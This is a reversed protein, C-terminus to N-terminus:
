LWRCVGDGHVGFEPTVKADIARVINPHNLKAVIRVERRFRAVIEPQNMMDGAVVKLAVV